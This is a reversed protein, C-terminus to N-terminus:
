AGTGGQELAQPQQAQHPHEIGRYVKLKKLTKRGLANKPLMGRVTLKIMEEPKKALMTKANMGKLGGPFGTHRYYMKDDLKNGTLMVKEANVVIVFDGVDMHPTFAPKTKGRLVSAIRAALRGLPLGEANVVYWNQQVEEPKPFYTKM